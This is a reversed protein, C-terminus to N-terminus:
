MFAAAIGILGGALPLLSRFLNLNVWKDLLTVSEAQNRDSLEIKPKAMNLLANNTNSMAVITYPVIGLTLIAAASYLGAQSYAAQRFLPAGSRVSWALYFFASATIAAIPRNQAKGAEYVNRWQKVILKPPANDEQRSSVLAPVANMSLAAINGSLWAAGTFGIAQAMRFGIPYSVM